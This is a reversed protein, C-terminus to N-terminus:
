QEEITLEVVRDGRKVYSEEEPLPPLYESDEAKLTEPVTEPPAILTPLKMAYYMSSGPIRRVRYTRCISFNPHVDVAQVRVKERDVTGLLEDTEPDRIEVPSEALVQFQMGAQVGNAEGINIVLERENLLQAVRGELRERNKKTTSSM